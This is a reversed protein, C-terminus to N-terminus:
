SREGSFFFISFADTGKSHTMGKGQERKTLRKKKKKLYILITEVGWALAKVAEAGPYRRLDHPEHPVFPVRPGGAVVQQVVLVRGAAVTADDLRHQHGVLAGPQRGHEPQRGFLMRKAGRGFELHVDLGLAQHVADFPLQEARDSPRQGAFRCGQELRKGPGPQGDHSVLAQVELRDDLDVLLGDVAVM